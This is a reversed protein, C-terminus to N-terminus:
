GRRLCPIIFPLELLASATLGSEIAWAILHALHDAAPCLLIAGRLRGDDPDAYLHVLGMARAEIRARGQDSYDAKGTVQTPADIRGIVALPPDTFM